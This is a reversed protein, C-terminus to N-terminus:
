FDESFARWCRAYCKGWSPGHDGGDADWALIHAWEHVLILVQTNEDLTNCIKIIFKDDKKTCYGSNHELKQRRVIVPLDTPFKKRLSAVAALFTGWHLDKKRKMPM